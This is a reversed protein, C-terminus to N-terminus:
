TEYENYMYVYYTILKAHFQQVGGFHAPSFNRYKPLHPATALILM